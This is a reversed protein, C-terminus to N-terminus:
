ANRVTQTRRSDRGHCCVYAILCFPVIWAVRSQKRDYVGSLAGCVAANIILFAVAAGLLQNVRKFSGTWALALCAVASIWFIAIHIGTLGNSMPFLRDNFQRSRMYPQLEKPIVMVVDYWYDVLINLRTEIGPHLAVLQLVSEKVSSIIFRQPHTRVAGHVIAEVEDEHGKLEDVLPHHFLFEIDNRPLNSLYRCSIFMRKPCSERLFDGAMGNGFLRGLIFYNKSPSISFGLGMNRHQNATWLGAAVIPVLLWPLVFRIPPHKPASRDALRLLILLGVYLVSIPFLSSHTAVSITVVLSLVVREGLRMESAFALLFASLLLMGAFVDPLLESVVWPLSTVAALVCAGALLCRDVYKTEGDILRALTLRLIYVVIVAQAAITFWTSTGLMTWKIFAGYGPARYPWLAIHFAGSRLYNGSDPTVIPYGNYLGAWCLLAAAVTGYLLTRPWEIKKEKAPRSKANTGEPMADVSSYTQDLVPIM